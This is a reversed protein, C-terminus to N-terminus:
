ISPRTKFEASLKQTLENSPQVVCALAIFSQDMGLNSSTGFCRFSISKKKKVYDSVHGLFWSLMIFLWFPTHCNCFLPCHSFAFPFGLLATCMSSKVSSAYCIPTPQPDAVNCCQPLSCSSDFGLHIMLWCLTTHAALVHPVGRLMEFVELAVGLFVFSLCAM